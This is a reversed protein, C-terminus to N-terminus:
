SPVEIQGTVAATILASRRERSLAIAERTDAIATDIEDLAQDLKEVTELQVSVDPIPVLWRKILEQNIKPMTNSSGRADAQIVRRAIPSLLFYALFERNLSGNPTIRYILDSFITRDDVQRVIAVDGVRDRTNSRTMLLDGNHLTIPLCLAEDVDHIVKVAQSDFVGRNICSLSVVAWQGEERDGGAAPSWGQEIQNLCRCLPITPWAPDFSDDLVAARRENLLEILREQDAIFADIEATERDLYDAIRRQEENTPLLLRISLMDAQTLKDRTSGSIVGSYDVSNLAYTLWRGDTAADPFLVHIHNNPWIPGDIYFAVQKSRDFFPAGDEGILVVSQNVKAQNVYDQISNAGWYPIEGQMSARQEANVPERLDDRCTAIRRLQTEPWNNM